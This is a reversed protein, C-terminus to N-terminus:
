SYHIPHEAFGGFAGNDRTTILCKQEAWIRPLRSRMPNRKLSKKRRTFGFFKKERAAVGASNSGNPFFSNTM